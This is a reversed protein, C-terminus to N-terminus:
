KNGREIGLGGAGTVYIRYRRGRHLIVDFLYGPIYGEPNRLFDELEESLANSMERATQILADKYLEIIEKRSIEVFHTPAFSPYAGAGANGHELFLWYPALTGWSQLRLGITERYKMIGYSGYDFGEKKRFLDGGTGERAPGYIRSKWFELAKAPSLVGTGLSERAFEIGANLDAWSGAYTEADIRVNESISFLIIKDNSFAKWLPGALEPIDYEGTSEIARELNYLLTGRAQEYILGVAAASFEEQSGQFGGLKQALKHAGTGIGRISDGLTM